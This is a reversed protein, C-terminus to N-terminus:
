AKSQQLKQERKQMENYLYEFKNYLLTWNYEKRVGEIIPKVKRWVLISPINSVSEHGILGRYLLDGAGDYLNCVIGIATAVSSEAFPSGYKKLFDNYDKFDLNWVKFQAEVFEKSTFSQYVRWFADTKRIKTQHKMELIYYVVGILVGAAAVIASIETVDVM